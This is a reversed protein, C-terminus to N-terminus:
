GLLVTPKVGLRAAVLGAPIGGALAGFAYAGALAGAAAKSFGLDDALEPLLPTLAAYFVSDVFVVAGVLLLLRRIEPNMSNRLSFGPPGRSCVACDQPSRPGRVVGGFNILRRKEHTRRATTATERPPTAATPTRSARAASVVMPTM